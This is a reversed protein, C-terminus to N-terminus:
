PMHAHAHVCAAGSVKLEQWPNKYKELKAAVMNMIDVQRQIKQEGREINKIVQVAAAATAAVTTYTFVCVAASLLRVHWCDFKPVRNSAAPVLSYM